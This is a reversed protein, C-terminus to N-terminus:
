RGTWDALDGAPLVARARPQPGHASGVARRECLPPARIERRVALTVFKFGLRLARQDARQYRALAAAPDDLARAMTWDAFFAYAKGELQRDAEEAAARSADIDGRLLHAWAIYHWITDDLIQAREPQRRAEDILQM